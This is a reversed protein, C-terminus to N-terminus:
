ERYSIKLFESIRDAPIAFAIGEVGIGMLKSNVIGMLEGQRNVLPGGSNGANISVDTQLFKMEGQNRVGSIIGKSLTQGLEISGPTGIAFVENGIDYKADNGLKFTQHTVCDAKLLALDHQENGRLFEAPCKEGDNRIIEAEAEPGPVVHFNTLILGDPSIFCGSGHGKDLKVTVTASQASGLDSVPNASAAMSMDTMAVIRAEKKELAKQVEAEGLFSIVSTLMADDLMTTLFDEDKKGLPSYEGSNASVDQSIIERNYVDRLDWRVETYVRSLMHKGNTKKTFVSRLKMQTITGTLFLLDSRDSLMKRTTDTFGRDVLEDNIPSWYNHEVAVEALGYTGISGYAWKVESDNNFFYAKVTEFEAEFVEDPELEMDFWLGELKVEMQNDAHIQDEVEPNIWLTGSSPLMKDFVIRRQPLYGEFLAEVELFGSGSPVRQTTEGRSPVEQNNVQFSAESDKSSIVVSQADAAQIGMCIFAVLLATRLIRSDPFLMCVPRLISVISRVPQESEGYNATIHTSVSDM